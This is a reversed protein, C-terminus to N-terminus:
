KLEREWWLKVEPHGAHVAIPTECKVESRCVLWNECLAYPSTKKRWIARALSAQGRSPMFEQEDIICDLFSSSKSNYFIVGMNLATMGRPMERLAGLDMPGVDAGIDLDGMPSATRDDTPAFIFRRPNQAMAIGFNEAIDFGNNIFRNVVYVDNDLYLTNRFASKKLAHLRFLSSNRNGRREDFNVTKYKTVHDQGLDPIDIDSWVNIDIDGIYKRVSSISNGLHGNDLDRSGCLVYVVGRSKHATM